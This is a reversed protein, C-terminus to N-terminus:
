PETSDTRALGKYDLLLNQLALYIPKPQMRHDFLGVHDKRKGWQMSNGIVWVADSDSGGHHYEKLEPYDLFMKMLGVAVDAQKRLDEQTPPSDTETICGIEMETIHVPLGQKLFREANKRVSKVDLNHDTHLQFGVGDIPVCVNDEIRGNGNIDFALDKESTRQLDTALQLYKDAKGGMTEVGYDNLILVLDPDAQRAWCFSLAILRFMKEDADKPSIADRPNYWLSKECFRRGNIVENAADWSVVVGPYKEKYHTVVKFIHDKLTMELQAQTWIADANFPEGKDKKSKEPNVWGPAQSHWLLVHGRITKGTERCYQAVADAPAFDYDTEDGKNRPHIPGMKMHNGCWFHTYVDDYLKRQEPLYDASKREHGKSDASSPLIKNVRIPAAMKIGRNAALDSLYARRVTVKEPDVVLAFRAGEIVIDFIRIGEKDTVPHSVGNVSVQMAGTDVDKILSFDARAYEVNQYHYDNPFKLSGDDGSLKFKEEIKGPNEIMTISKITEISQPLTHIRSVKKGLPSLETTFTEGSWVGITSSVLCVVTILVNRM